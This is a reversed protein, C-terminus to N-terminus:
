KKKHDQYLNLWWSISVAVDWIHVDAHLVSKWDQHLRKLDEFYKINSSKSIEHIEYSVTEHLMALFETKTKKTSSTSMRSADQSHTCKLRLCTLIFRESQENKINRLSQEIVSLFDENIKKMLQFHHIHHVVNSQNLSNTFILNKFHTYFSVAANHQSCASQTLRVYIM